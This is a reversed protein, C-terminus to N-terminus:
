WSTSVRNRGARKAEYMAGDAVELAAAAGAAGFLHVGCSATVVVDAAGAAIPEGVAAIVREALLRAGRMDLDDGLIVFEDGGIRAVTDTSRAVTGLRRAVEILVADGVDHGLTDNIGKFGDLDVYLLARRDASRSGLVDALHRRNHLGTLADRMALEALGRQQRRDLADTVDAGLELAGAAEQWWSPARGRVSQKWASFSVRPSFTDPRNEPSQDGLWAIERTVEHRLFLLCGHENGLPVTLLGAFDPVVRALHPEDLELADTVIERSGVAAVLAAATAQEIPGSMRIEGDLVVIAADAAVLDLVTREGDLLAGAVDDSAFLPSLLEARDARVRLTHQLEAIRELSGLMMSVQVALVELARRLLVPLRRETRHACTIMGALRGDQVLSLSVTSEQGMNRMFRIHHPSVARLEALSLDIVTEDEGIALLGSGPDTTSVIARSLKSVYLARAQLPVDSAPFHLGRYPEMGAAADEAVVEGHEDDFFHYMMVRDFGTIARVERVTAARLQAVDDIAALRQIASVVSTRAYEQDPIVPELEILIRGQAPHAIADYAAGDVEIRTPDVQSGSAVAWSLSPSGLDSIRRGLWGAANESIVTVTSTAPDVGLLRGHSQIRGPTRIAERACQELRDREAADAFRAVPDQM